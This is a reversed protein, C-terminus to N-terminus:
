LECARAVAAFVEDYSIAGLDATDLTVVAGGIELAGYREDGLAAALEDRQGSEVHGPHRAGAEWRAMYRKVVVDPPAACVIQLTRFAHRARLDVFRPTDYGRSFNAEVIASRGARVQAEAFAFLLAMSAGGLRRSWERDSWGLTDFLIEKIGDKSLLPLAFREALRQGLTTKGTCPAGTIVVLLPASTPMSM